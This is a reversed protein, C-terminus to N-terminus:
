LFDKHMKNKVFVEEIAINYNKYKCPHCKRVDISDVLKKHQESNWVEKFSKNSIDGVVYKLNGRWQCCLYVKMDAGIITILPTARCTKFNKDNTKIENFRNMTGLIKFEPYKEKMKDIKYGSVAVAEESLHEGIVPRFQIYDFGNKVANEVANEVEFFNDNCVLFAYGLTVDTKKNKSMENIRSLIKTYEHEDKPRHIKFHTEDSGSDLSVRLYTNYKLITDQIKKNDLFGGNTSVGVKLGLKHTREIAECINPHFTPEGGGTFLISKVGLSALEDILGFLKEKKMMVKERDKFFQYFCWICKHNCINSVDIQACTPYPMGGELITEIKTAQALCKLGNFPSINM